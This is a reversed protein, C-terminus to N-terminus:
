KDKYKTIKDRMDQTEKQIIQDRTGHKTPKIDVVEVSKGLRKLYEDIPTQFHKNSDSISLIIYKSMPFFDNYNNFLNKNHLLIWSMVALCSV